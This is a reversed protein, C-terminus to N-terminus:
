NPKSLLYFLKGLAAEDTMDYGSVVGAEVLGRAANYADMKVSGYLCQTCNVIVVGRDNDKKLTMQISPDNIMNGAGYTNLIL